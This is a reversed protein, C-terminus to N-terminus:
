WTVWGDMWGNTGDDLHITVTLVWEEIKKRNELTRPENQNKKKNKINTSSTELNPSRSM